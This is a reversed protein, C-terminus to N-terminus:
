ILTAATVMQNHGDKHVAYQFGKGYSFGGTDGAKNLAVLAVFFDDYDKKLSPPHKHRIREVALRCAETPTKGQRMLEVALFSGSSKLIAEGLGTAAAAGVDNDVYLGAGIIPSDGVRGRMKWALGSTSCAGAMNGASDMALLGLTDHNRPTVSQHPPGQKKRWQQYQDAAQRTLLNEKIFGNDLAFKLAGEGALIVHPTREMVLRAISVPHKIHELFVVSGCRGSGDMICADLTVKGDEDPLGGYGVTTIAPDAEVTRVGLEVADLLSKGQNLAQFVKENAQAGFPWTSIVLLSGAKWGQSISSNPIVALSALSVTKLFTRRDPM